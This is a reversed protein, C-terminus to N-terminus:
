HKNMVFGIVKNKLDLMFEGFIIAPNFWYPMKYYDAYVVPGHRTIGQIEVLGREEEYDIIHKTMGHFRLDDEIEHIPSIAYQKDEMPLSIADAHGTDLYFDHERSNVSLKVFYRGDKETLPVLLDFEKPQEELITVKDRSYSVVITKLYPQGLVLYDGSTEFFYGRYWHDSSLPLTIKWCKDNVKTSGDAFNLVSTTEISEM